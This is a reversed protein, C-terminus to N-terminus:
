WQSAISQFFSSSSSSSSISSASYSTNLSNHRPNSQESNTSISDDLNNLGIQVNRNKAQESEKEYTGAHNNRNTLMEEYEEELDELCANHKKGFVEHQVFILLPNSVKRRKSSNTVGNKADGTPSVCRKVPIKGPVLFPVNVSPDM